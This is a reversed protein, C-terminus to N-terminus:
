GFNNSIPAKGDYTANVPLTWLKKRHIAFPGALSARALAATRFECAYMEVVHCLIWAGRQPAAKAIVTNEQLRRVCKKLSASAVPGLRYELSVEIKVIEAEHYDRFEEL